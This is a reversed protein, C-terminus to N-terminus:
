ILARGLIIESDSSGCVASIPMYSIVRISPYHVNRKNELLGGLVM